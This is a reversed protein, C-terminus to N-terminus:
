LVWSVSFPAFRGYAGSAFGFYKVTGISIIGTSAMQMVGPSQEDAAATIYIGIQNYVDFSPRFQAPIATVSFFFGSSTAQFSSYSKVYMTVLKGVRVLAVQVGPYAACGTFNTTFNYEEYHNLTAATGGTTPLKLGGTVALLGDRDLTMQPNATYVTNDSKYSLWEWGGTSAGQNCAFTTRGNTSRNRAMVAGGTTPVQTMDIGESVVQKLLVSDTRTMNQNLTILSGTPAKLEMKSRDSSVRVYSNSSVGAEEFYIGATGVTSAAGGSNLVLSKDAVQTNTATVNNLTGSINVTDGAGGINIVTAGAGNNGMNITQVGTGSGINVTNTNDASAINLTTGISELGASYLTGSTIVAVVSSNGLQITNNADM